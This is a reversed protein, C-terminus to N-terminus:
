PIGTPEWWLHMQATGTLEFCEVRLSHEGRGLKVEAAVERPGGAQWADIVLRGDVWLRAGDDVVIRFRYTAADFRLKRTWRASFNDVPMGGAVSGSGWDFDIRSENQVLAPDGRLDINTWYEGQWEPFISIKDWSVRIAARGVREYYEVRLRHDGAPLFTTATVERRGGDQWADLLLEDDAYIRLGDDVNATFRYTGLDFALTRTWRVSFGDAPLGATPAATGWDFDITGDDRVVVPSGDLHPNAYYEGKWGAVPPPTAPPTPTPPTTGVVVRVQITDSGGSLGFPAGDANYLQWHGEYSGNGTPATLTVSLDVMGGPAVATPLPLAAPGGLRAGGAFSLTYDTNWLCTGNNRLRWTKVFTQGPVVLTGDPITVDAVLTALDSCGPVPTPSPPVPTPAPATPPPPDPPLTATPDPANTPPVTPGTGPTQDPLTGCAGFLACLAFGLLVLVILRRRTNNM